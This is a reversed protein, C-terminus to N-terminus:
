LFTVETYAAHNLPQFFFLLPQLGSFVTYLTSLVQWDLWKVAAIVVKLKAGVKGAAYLHVDGILIKPVM